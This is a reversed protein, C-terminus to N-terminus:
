PFNLLQNFVKARAIRAVLSFEKRANGRVVLEASLTHLNWPRLATSNLSMAKLNSVVPQNELNVDGRHSLYRLEYKRDVYLSRIRTIPILLRILSLDRVTATRTLMSKTPKLEYTGCVGSVAIKSQPSTVEFVGHLSIGLFGHFQEAPSNTEFIPCATVSIRSAGAQYSVIRLSRRADVAAATIADSAHHPRRSAAGRMVSNPSGDTFRINGHKHLRPLPILASSDGDHVLQELLSRTRLFVTDSSDKSQLLRYFVGQEKVALSLAALLPASVAIAVLLELLSIGASRRFNM